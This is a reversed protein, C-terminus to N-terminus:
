KSWKLIYVERIGQHCVVCATSVDLTLILLASFRFYTLNLYVGDKKEVFFTQCFTIIILGFGDIM